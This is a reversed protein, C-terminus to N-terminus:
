VCPLRQDRQFLPSVHGLERVPVFEFGCGHFPVEQFATFKRMMRYTRLSFLQLRDDQHRGGVLLAPLQVEIDPTRPDLRLLDLLPPTVWHQEGHSLPDGHFAVLQTVGDMEGTHLALVPLHLPPARPKTDLSAHGTDVPLPVQDLHAIGESGPFPVTAFDLPGDGLLKGSGLHRPLGSEQTLLLSAKGDSVADDRELVALLKIQM